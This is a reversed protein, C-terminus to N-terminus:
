RQLRDLVAQFEELTVEDPLGAFEHTTVLRGQVKFALSPGGVRGFQAGAGRLFIVYEEGIRYSTETGELPASGEFCIGAAEQMLRIHAPLAGKLSAIVRADHVASVFAGTCEGPPATGEIRVHAIADAQRYAEHPEPVVWFIEVLRGVPLRFDLTETLSEALRVNRTQARFGALTATVSYMGPPLGAVEFHGKEDSVITKRSDPGEITIRAGPLIGGGTEQVVGVIRLATQAQSSAQLLLAAALITILHM